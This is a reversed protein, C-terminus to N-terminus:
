CHFFHFTLGKSNINYPNSNYTLHVIKFSTIIQNLSISSPQRANSEIAVIAGGINNSLSRFDILHFIFDETKASQKNGNQNSLHMRVMKQERNIM